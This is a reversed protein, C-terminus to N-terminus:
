QLNSLDFASIIKISMRLTNRVLFSSTVRTLVDPIWRLLLGMGERRCMSGTTVSSCFTSGKKNCCYNRREKNGKRM